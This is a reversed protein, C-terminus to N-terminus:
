YGPQAARGDGLSGIARAVARATRDAARAIAMGAQEATEEIVIARRPAALRVVVSCRQDVGGRPGNLDAIRVTMSRVSRGFRGLAFQMRRKALIAIGPDVGPGTRIDIGM